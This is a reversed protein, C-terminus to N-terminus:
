FRYAFELAFGHSIGKATGHVAAPLTMDLRYEAKVKVGDTIQYGGGLAFVHSQSDFGTYNGHIDHLYDYRLYGDLNDKFAYDLLAQGAYAKCNKGTNQASAVPSCAGGRNDQRYIGELGLMFKDTINWTFDIDGGFTYHRNTSVGAAIGEPGWFGSIGLTSKKGESGWNFGLRAGASPVATDTVTGNTIRDTLNNVAYIQLDVNDSFAYYLKAGTGSHPRVFRYINSFSLAVNDPRDVSEIGIPLNFRGVAVEIGNGAPINFTAYAQEVNLANLTGSLTRGLDLDARIRINEGFSKALDIEASDLYFNFTDHKASAAGRFDGLQGFGVRGSTDADNVTNLGGRANKGDHQWGVVADLHGGIELGGAASKSGKEAQVVGVGMLTTAAMLAVLGVKKM